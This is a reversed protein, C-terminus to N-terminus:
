QNRADVCRDGDWFRYTGCRGAPVRAYGRDDDYRRTYGYVRPGYARPARYGYAPGYAYGDDYDYIVPPGVYIGLSQATAGGSWTLGLLVAAITFTAKSRM